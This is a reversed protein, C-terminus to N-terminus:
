LRSKSATHTQQREALLHINRTEKWYSKFHPQDQQFSNQILPICRPTTLAPFIHTSKQLLLSSVNKGPKEIGVCTLRLKDQSEAQRPSEATGKGEYGRDRCLTLQLFVKPIHMPSYCPHTHSLGTATVSHARPHKKLSQSRSDQLRFCRQIKQRHEPEDPVELHKQGREPSLIKPARLSRATPCLCSFQLQHRFVLQPM